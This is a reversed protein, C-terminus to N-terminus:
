LHCPHNTPLLLRTHPPLQNAKELPLSLFSFLTSTSSSPSTSAPSNSDWSSEVSATSSSDMSAEHGRRTPAKSAKATKSDNSLRPIYGDLRKRHRFLSAPDCTQFNCTPDDTCLFSRDRTSIIIPRTLSSLNFIFLLYVSDAITLTWILNKFTVPTVVKGLARSSGILRTLLLLRTLFYRSSSPM